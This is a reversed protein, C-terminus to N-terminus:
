AVFDEQLKVDQLWAAMDWTLVLIVPRSLSLHETIMITITFYFNAASSCYQIANAQIHTGLLTVLTYTEYRLM